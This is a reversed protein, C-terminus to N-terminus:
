VYKDVIEDLMNLRPSELLNKLTNWPSDDINFDGSMFSKFSAPGFGSLMTTGVQTTTNNYGNTNGRLNWFIIHPLDYGYNNYKKKLMDYGTIFSDSNDSAMDFQMDSFIVMKPPMDSKKLNNEVAVKLIMDLAKGINTSGGWPAKQLYKIKNVINLHDPINFWQPNTEFTLVKNKWTDNLMDSLLLSLAICSELPTGYMSGSVDALIIMNLNDKLELEIVMKKILDYTYKDWLAIVNEEDSLTQCNGAIVDRVIEYPQLGSVNLRSESSSKNLEELMKNRLIMRKEDNPHRILGTKKDENKLAYLYKKLARSPINKPEILDWDGQTMLQEIITMKNSLESLTKRYNRMKKNLDSKEHFNDPRMNQALAIAMKHQKKNERPAWKVALSPYSENKDLEICKLYYYIIDKKFKDHAMEYLKNLDLFSGFPKDEMTENNKYINYGGTLYPLSCIVINPYIDYLKILLTYFILREGNGDKHDRILFLLKVVYKWYVKKESENKSKINNVIFDFLDGIKSEVTVNKGRKGVADNYLNVLGVCDESSSGSVTYSVNGKENLTYHNMANCFAM